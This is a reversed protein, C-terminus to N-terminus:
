QVSSKAFLNVIGANVARTPLSRQCPLGASPACCRTDRPSRHAPGSDQLLEGQSDTTPLRCRLVASQVGHLQARCFHRPLSFQDSGIPLNQGSKLPFHVVRTASTLWFEAAADARYACAADLPRM